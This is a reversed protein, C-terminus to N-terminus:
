SSPCLLLPHQCLVKERGAKFMSAIGPAAVAVKGGHALFGLLHFALSSFFPSLIFLSFFESVESPLLSFRPPVFLLKSSRKVSRLSRPYFRWNQAYGQGHQDWGPTEKVGRVRMGKGRGEMLDEGLPATM